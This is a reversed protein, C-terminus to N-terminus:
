KEDMAKNKKNSEIVEKLGTKEMLIQIENIEATKILPLKFKERRKLIPGTFPVALGTEFIRDAQSIYGEPCKDKRVLLNKLHEFINTLEVGQPCLEVCRLCTTCQWVNPTLLNILQENLGLISAEIIRRPNYKGNTILAVPCAGSCTGCQYCYNLSLNNQTLQRRFKFDISLM